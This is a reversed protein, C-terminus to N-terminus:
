KRINQAQCELIVHKVGVIWQSVECSSDRILSVQLRAAENFDCESIGRALLYMRKRTTDSLKGQMWQSRMVDLRRKIDELKRESVNPQIQKLMKSINTDIQSLMETSDINPVKSIDIKGDIQSPPSQCPITASPRYFDPPTFVNISSSPLSGNQDPPFGPLPIPETVGTSRSPSTSPPKPTMGPPLYPVRKNLQTRPRSSAGASNTAYGFQPPDNWAREHNGACLPRDASALRVFTSLTAASLSHGAPEVLLN